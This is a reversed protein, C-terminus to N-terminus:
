AGLQQRRRSAAAVPPRPIMERLGNTLGAVSLDLDLQPWHFGQGEGLLIWNSRKAPTARKLTPYWALPISVERQDELSVIIRDRAFRLGMARAETATERKNLRVSGTSM